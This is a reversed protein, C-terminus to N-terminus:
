PTFVGADDVKFDARGVNVQADTVGPAVALLKRTAKDMNKEGYVLLPLPSAPVGPPPAIFLHTLLWSSDVTFTKGKPGTFTIPESPQLDFSKYITGSRGTWSQGPGSLNRNALNVVYTALNFLTKGLTSAHSLLFYPNASRIAAVLSDAFQPNASRLTVLESEALPPLPPFGPPLQTVPGSSGKGGANALLLALAALALLPFM